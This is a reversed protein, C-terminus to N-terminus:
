RDDQAGPALGLERAGPSLSSGISLITDAPTKRPMRGQDHITPVAAFM